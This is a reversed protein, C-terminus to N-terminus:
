NDVQVLECETAGRPSATPRHYVSLPLLEVVAM